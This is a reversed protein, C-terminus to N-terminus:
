SNTSRRRLYLASGLVGVFGIFSPLWVSMGTLALGSKSASTTSVAVALGVPDTISRLAPDLDLEGNDAITYTLRLAPRGQYTTQAVAAGQITFYKQTDPNYKRAVVQDSALDTVFTLEVVNNTHETTFCLGVLGHPYTYSLDQVSASSESLSNSCTIETDAPTRLFLAQGDEANSFNTMNTPEDQDPIDPPDPPPTDSIENQITISKSATLTSGWVGTASVRLTYTGNPVVNTDWDVTYPETMVTGLDLNELQFSVGSLLETDEGVAATINIIGSVPTSGAPSVISIPSDNGEGPIVVNSRYIGSDTGGFYLYRNYIAISTAVSPVTGLEQWNTINTTRTLTNNSRLVYMYEGDVYVDKVGGSFGLITQITTGDFASLGNQRTIIRNNFTDVKPVASVPAIVSTTGTTWTTGDFIRVPPAPTVSAAQMYIKNNISAVWYYREYGNGGGTDTQVIEWTSGGDTSHWATATSGGRSGALWLDTGNLTAVDFVHEATVSNNLVWPEGIGYGAAATAGGIPDITPAYLKGNIIRYKSIEETPVSLQSGVFTNTSLNLPNVHIPGTNANYDGYGAYLKDNLVELDHITKGRATSQAAAQPHTAVLTYGPTAAHLEKSHMLGVIGGMLLIAAIAYTLRKTIILKM